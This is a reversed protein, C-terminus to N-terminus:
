PHFWLRGDDLPDQGDLLPNSLEIVRRGALDLGSLDTRYRDLVMAALSGDAVMAALGARVREARRRGEADDAFWFYIPLPYHLLLHREVALGSVLMGGHRFDDMVEAVGRSFADFRKAALMHYLGEFSQGEVLSMGNSRMVRSDSWAPLLGFRVAKLDDLSAIRDFREQDGERILLVRYSQLGFEVPIRVPILGPTRDATGNFAAVTIAAHSQSLEYRQRSVPAPPLARLEYGGYTAVTRRLAAELLRWHFRRIPTREVQGDYYIFRMPSIGGDQAWSRGSWAAICVAIVFMLRVVGGEENFFL